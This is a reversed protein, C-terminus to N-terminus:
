LAGLGTSSGTSGTKGHIELLGQSQLHGPVAAGQWDHRAYPTTHDLGSVKRHVINSVCLVSGEVPKPRDVRGSDDM